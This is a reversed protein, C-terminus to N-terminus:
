VVTVSLLLFFFISAPPASPSSSNLDFGPCFSFPHCSAVNGGEVTSGGFVFQLFLDVLFNCEMSMVMSM